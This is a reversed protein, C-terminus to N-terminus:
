CANIIIIMIIFMPYSLLSIVWGFFSFMIFDKTM